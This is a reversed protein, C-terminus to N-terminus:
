EFEPEKISVEYYSILDNIQQDRLHIAFDKATNGIHTQINSDAGFDLLMKICSINEYLVAKHLPTQGSCDQFNINAGYKILLAIGTEIEICGQCRKLDSRRSCGELIMGLAQFLLPTGYQNLENPDSGHELLEQFRQVNGSDLCRFLTDGM